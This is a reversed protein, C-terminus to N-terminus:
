FELDTESVQYISDDPHAPDQEHMATTVEGTEGNWVVMNGDQDGVIRSGEPATGEHWEHMHEGPADFMTVSQGDETQGAVIEYSHGDDDPM